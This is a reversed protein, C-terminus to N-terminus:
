LLFTVTFNGIHRELNRVFTDIAIDALGLAWVIRNKLALLDVLDIWVLAGLADPMESLRLAALDTWDVADWQIQIKLFRM